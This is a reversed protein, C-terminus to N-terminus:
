IQWKTHYRLTNINRAVYVPFEEDQWRNRLFPAFNCNKRM